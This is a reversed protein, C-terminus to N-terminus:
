DLQSWHDTVHRTTHHHEMATSENGYPCRFQNGFLIALAM